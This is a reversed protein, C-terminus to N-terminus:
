FVATSLRMLSQPESTHEESRIERTIIKKLAPMDALRRIFRVGELLAQVDADSALYDPQIEPAECPDTSRIKLYGRSSPRCNSVGLLFASFPDPNMLPRTNPPARTYSVPSFYLQM